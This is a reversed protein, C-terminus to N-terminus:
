RLECTHLKMQSSKAPLLFVHTNRLHTQRLPFGELCTTDEFTKKEGFQLGVVFLTGEFARCMPVVRRKRQDCRIGWPDLNGAKASLAM